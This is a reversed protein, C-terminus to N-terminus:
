PSWFMEAAIAFNLSQNLRARDVYSLTTIGILNGRADFLGGGSSGPSIPASTQVYRVGEDERRASLIGDTLTLDLGSPSGLTYVPEGVKLDAYPRVGQVPRLTAGNVELICRDKKSDSEALKAPWQQNQQKVVISQASEVVHCNTLVLQPTVAVASGWAVGLARKAEVKLVSPALKEFLQPGPLADGTLSANPFASLGKWPAWGGRPAQRQKETGAQKRDAPVQEFYKQAFAKLDRLQEPSLPWVGACGRLVVKDAERLAALLEGDLDVIGAEPPELQVQEGDVFLELRCDRQSSTAFSLEIHEEADAPWASIKLLADPEITASYFLKGKGWVDDSTLRPAQTDRYCGGSDTCTYSSQKGCGKAEFHGPWSQKLQIEATACDYEARFARRVQPELPVTTCGALLAASGLAARLWGTQM